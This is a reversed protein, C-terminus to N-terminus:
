EELNYMFYLKVEIYQGNQRASKFVWKLTIIM